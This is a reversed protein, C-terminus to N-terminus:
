STGKYLEFKAELREVSQKFSQIDYFLQQAEEPSPQLKSEYKLYDGSSREAEQIAVKTRRFLSRVTTNIIQTASDGILMSLKQEVDFDFRKLASMLHNLLGIEGRASIGSVILANPGKERLLTVFQTLSGKLSLSPDGDYNSLLMVQDDNIVAFLRHAPQTIEIDIVCGDLPAMIDRAANDLSLVQQIFQEAITLTAAKIM